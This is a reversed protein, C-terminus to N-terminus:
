ASWHPVSDIPSQELMDSLSGSGTMPPSFTGTTVAVTRLESRIVDVSVISFRGLQIATRLETFNSLDGFVGRLSTELAEITTFVVCLEDPAFAYAKNFKRTAMFCRLAAPTAIQGDVALAFGRMAASAAERQMKQAGLQYEPEPKFNEPAAAPNLAREADRYRRLPSVARPLPEFPVGGRILNEVKDLLGTATLLDSSSERVADILVLRARELNLEAQAVSLPAESANSTEARAEKERCRYPELAEAVLNPLPSTSYKGALLRVLMEDTAQSGTRKVVARLEDYAQELSTKEPVPGASYRLADNAHNDVEPTLQRLAAEHVELARVLPRSRLDKRAKMSGDKILQATMEHVIRRVLPPGGGLRTFSEIEDVVPGILGDNRIEGELVGRLEELTAAVVDNKTMTENGMECETGNDGTEAQLLARGGPSSAVSKPASHSRDLPM